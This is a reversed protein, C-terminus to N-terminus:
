GCDSWPAMNSKIFLDERESRASPGTHVDKAFTIQSIAAVFIQINIRGTVLLKFVQLQM